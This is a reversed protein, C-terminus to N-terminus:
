KKKKQHRKRINEVDAMTRLLKEKLEAAEAELEEIRKEAPSVSEVEPEVSGNTEQNVEEGAMDEGKFESKPGTEKSTEHNAEM